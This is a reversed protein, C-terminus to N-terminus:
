YFIFCYSAAVFTAVVTAAARAVACQTTITCNMLKKLILYIQQKENLHYAFIQITGM